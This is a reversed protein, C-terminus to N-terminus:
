SRKPGFDTVFHVGTHFEMNPRYEAQSYLGVWGASVPHQFLIPRVNTWCRLRHVLMLGVM